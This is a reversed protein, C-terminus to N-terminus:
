ETRWIRMGKGDKRTAYKYKRRRLCATFGGTMNAEPLLVCDGVGMMEIVPNYKSGAKTKKEPIEIGKEVKLEIM